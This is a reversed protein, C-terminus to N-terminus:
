IKEKNGYYKADGNINQLFRPLWRTGATKQKRLSRTEDVTQKIKRIFPIKGTGQAGDNCQVTDCVAIKYVGLYDKLVFM